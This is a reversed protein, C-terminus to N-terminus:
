HFIVSSVFSTATCQYDFLLVRTEQQNEVNVLSLQAVFNGATM